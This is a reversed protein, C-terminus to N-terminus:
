PLVELVACRRVTRGSVPCRISDVERLRQEKVLMTIKPRVANMDTFGMIGACERDTMPQGHAVFCDFVAAKFQGFPISAYADLSNAHMDHTAHTHSM